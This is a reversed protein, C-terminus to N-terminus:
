RRYNLLRPAFKYLIVTSTPTWKRGVDHLM